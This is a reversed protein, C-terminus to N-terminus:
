TRILVLDLCCRLQKKTGEESPFIFVLRESVLYLLLSTASQSNSSFLLTSSSSSFVFKNPVNVDASNNILYLLWQTRGRQAAQHLPTEGFKNQQNINAGKELILRFVRHHLVPDKCASRVLYHLPSAGENTLARAFSGRNLLIECIEFNGAAAASHLPTWGNRDIANVDAKFKDVLVEVIESRGEYSAVHLLTQGYDGNKANVADKGEKKLYKLLEPKLGKKTLLFPNVALAM